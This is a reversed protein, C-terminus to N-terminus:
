LAMKVESKNYGKLNLWRKNYRDVESLKDKTNSVTWWGSKIPNNYRTHLMMWYLREAIYSRQSSNHNWKNKNSNRTRRIIYSKTINQSGSKAELCLPINTLLSLWDWKVCAWTPINWKVRAPRLVLAFGEGECFAIRCNKYTTNSANM